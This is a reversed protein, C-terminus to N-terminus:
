KKVGYTDQYKEIMILHDEYGGCETIYQVINDLTIIAIVPLSYEQEIQQVVTKEGTGREQRDMIIVIGVPNAGNEKVIKLCERIATGVSIVDDVILVNGKLPAGVINGGEEHNKKKKEISLTPLM